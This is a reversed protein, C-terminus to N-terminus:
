APAIRRALLQRVAFADTQLNRAKSLGLVQGVLANLAKEKGARFEEVAKSGTALVQDIISALAPDEQVAAARAKLQEAKRQEERAAAEAAARSREELLPRLIAQPDFRGELEDLLGWIHEEVQDGRQIRMYHLTGRGTTGKPDNDKIGRVISIQTM